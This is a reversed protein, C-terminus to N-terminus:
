AEKICGGRLTLFKAGVDNPAGINCAGPLGQHGRSAAAGSPRPLGKFPNRTREKGGREAWPVDAQKTGTGGAM